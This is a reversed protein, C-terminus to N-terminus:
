DFFAPCLSPAASETFEPGLEAKSHTLADFGRDCDNSM